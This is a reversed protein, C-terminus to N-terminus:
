DALDAESPLSQAPRRRARWVCLALLSGGILACPFPEPTIDGIRTIIVSGNGSNEGAILIPDAGGNFSGGGGGGDIGGDGGSYGGGGGGGVFGGGGGGGFGGAGGGGFSKGAGGTLTPFGKGGDGNNDGGDSDGGDSTFGGGGGGDGRNFPGGSGGQSSSASIQGDGGNEFNGAGGGAGAVLLANGGTTVFSGGGGGGGNGGFNGAGGVYINLIEGATLAFEGGIEAGKGGVGTGAENGGAAGFATIQYEGSSSAVFSQATNGDFVFTDAVAPMAALLLGFLAGGARRLGPRQGLKVRTDGFTRM